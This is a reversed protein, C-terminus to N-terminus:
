PKKDDFKELFERIEQLDEGSVKESDLAGMVLRAASGRFLGNMMKGLVDQQCEERSILPTYLHTRSQTDRSLLGKGTMIQMTKLTTTYGTDKTRELEEHVQRVTAPAIDWLVQLIELESEAPRINKKKKM